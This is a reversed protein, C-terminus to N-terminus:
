WDISKKTKKQKRWINKKKKQQSKQNKQFKVNENLEIAFQYGIMSKTNAARLQLEYENGKKLFQQEIKLVFPTEGVTYNAFTSISLLMGTILLVYKM